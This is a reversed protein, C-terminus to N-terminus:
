RVTLHALLIFGLSGVHVFDPRFAVLASRPFRFLEKGLGELDVQHTRLRVPRGLSGSHCPVGRKTETFERHGEIQKLFYHQALVPGASEATFNHAKWPPM